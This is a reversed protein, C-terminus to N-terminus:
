RGPIETLMTQRGHIPNRAHKPGEAYTRASSGVVYYLFVGLYILIMAAMIPILATQFSAYVLAILTLFLLSGSVVTWSLIAEGLIAM